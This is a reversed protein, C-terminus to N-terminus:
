LNGEFYHRISRPMELAEAQRKREDAAKIYCLDVPKSDAVPEETKLRFTADDPEPKIQKDKPELEALLQCVKSLEEPGM